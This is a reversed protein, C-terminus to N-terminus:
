VSLRSSSPMSGSSNPPEAQSAAMAENKKNARPAIIGTKGKIKRLPVVAMMALKIQLAIPKNKIPVMMVNNVPRDTNYEPVRWTSKPKPAAVM